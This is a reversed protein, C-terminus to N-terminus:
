LLWGHKKKSSNRVLRHWNDPASGNRLSLVTSFDDDFVVHFQPSVLATRPNLVLVVSGVHAPSHSVYIRLHSHPDWKPPGDGGADQLRADLVYVPCGFTHYNQVRVASGAVQSFKMEPTLGNIDVHINNIHDAAALLAFPWLMTSIYEPWLRQAHLLMTRSTLTLHKRKAEAIGNQHHADTGFFTLRQMKKHCDNKFMHEAYRRNDAHYGKM